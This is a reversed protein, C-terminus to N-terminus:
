DAPALDDLASLAGIRERAGLASALRALVTHVEGCFVVPQLDQLASFGFGDLLVRELESWGAGTLSSVQVTRVNGASAALGGDPHRGVPLDCKTYAIMDISELGVQGVLWSESDSPACSGDIVLMRLDGRRAQAVARVVGEAELPDDTARMGATDVLIVPWGGLAIRRGVWDRTTGATSAVLSIGQGALRNAISSKGANPPGIIVLTRGRWLSGSAARSLLGEAELRVSDVDAASVRGRWDAVMNRWAVGQGALWQVVRPTAAEALCAQVWRDLPCLWGFARDEPGGAFRKLFETQDPVTQNCAMAANNAAM